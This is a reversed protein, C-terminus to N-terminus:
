SIKLFGSFHHGIVTGLTEGRRDLDAPRTTEHGRRFPGIGKRFGVVTM